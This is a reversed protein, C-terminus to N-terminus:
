AKRLYGLPEGRREFIARYLGERQAETFPANHDSM